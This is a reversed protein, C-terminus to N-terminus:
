AQWGAGGVREDEGILVRNLGDAARVPLRALGGAPGRGIQVQIVHEPPVAKSRQGQAPDVQVGQTFEGLVAPVRVDEPLLNQAGTTHAGSRDRRGAGSPRAGRAHSRISLPNVYAGGPPVKPDM